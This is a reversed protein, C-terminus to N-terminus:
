SLKANAVAASLGETEAISKIEQQLQENRAILGSSFKALARFEEKLKQHADKENFLESSRQDLAEKIAATQETLEQNIPQLENCLKMTENSQRQIRIAEDAQQTVDDDAKVLRRKLSMCEEQLALRRQEFEAELRARVQTLESESQESARKINDNVLQVAQDQLDKAQARMKAENAEREEKMKGEYEIRLAERGAAHEQVMRIRAAEVNGTEVSQQALTLRTTLDQCQERLNQNEQHAKELEESAQQQVAQMIQHMAQVHEALQDREGTISIISINSPSPQNKLLLDSMRQAVYRHNKGKLRANENMLAEKERMMENIRIVTAEVGPNMREAEECKRKWHRAEGQAYNLDKGHRTKTRQNEAMGAKLQQEVQKRLKIDDLLRQNDAFLRQNYVLLNQERQISVRLQEKLDNVDAEHGKKIM